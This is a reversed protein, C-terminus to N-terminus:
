LRARYLGAHRVRVAQRGSWLQVHHRERDLRMSRHGGGGRVNLEHMGLEDHFAAGRRRARVRQQLKDFRGSHRRSREGRIRESQCVRRGRQLEKLAARSLRPTRSARSGQQEIEAATLCADPPLVCIGAGGADAAFCAPLDIETLDCMLREPNDRAGGGAGAEAGGVTARSARMTPMGGGDVPPPVRLEIASKGGSEASLTLYPAHRRTEALASSSLMTAVLALLRTSM